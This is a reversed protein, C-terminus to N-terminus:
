KITKRKQLLPPPPLLVLFLKFDRRKKKHAGSDSDDILSLDCAVSRKIDTKMSKQHAFFAELDVESVAKFLGPNTQSFFQSVCSIESKINRAYERLLKETIGVEYTYIMGIKKTGKITLGCSFFVRAKPAHSFVTLAQEMVQNLWMSRLNLMLKKDTFFMTKTDIVSDDEDYKLVTLCAKGPRFFDGIKVGSKSRLLDSKKEVDRVPVEPNCGEPTQRALKREYVPLHVLNPILSPDFKRENACDAHCNIFKLFKGSEIMNVTKKLPFMNVPNKRSVKQFKTIKSGLRDFRPNSSSEDMHESQRMKRVFLKVAFDNAAEDAAFAQDIEEATPLNFGDEVEPDKSKRAQITKFEVSALFHDSKESKDLDMLNDESGKIILCDPTCGIFPFLKCVLRGPTVSTLDGEWNALQLVAPAVFQEVYKSHMLSGLVMPLSSNENIEASPAARSFIPDNAVCARLCTEMRAPDYNWWDIMNPIKGYLNNKYKFTRSTFSFEKLTCLCSMEKSFECRCIICRKKMKEVDLVDANLHMLDRIDIFFKKFRAASSSNQTLKCYATYVYGAKLLAECEPTYFDKNELLIELYTKLCAKLSTHYFDQLTSAVSM